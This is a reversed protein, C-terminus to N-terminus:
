SNISWPDGLHRVVLAPLRPSVPDKTLTTTLVNIQALARRLRDLLLRGNKRLLEHELIRVVKWGLKRLARNV